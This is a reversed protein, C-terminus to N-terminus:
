RSSAPPSRAAPMAWSRCSTQALLLRCTPKGRWPQRFKRNYDVLDEGSLSLLREVVVSSGRGQLRADAFIALAKGILPELGFENKLSNLTPGAVNEGGILKTLTRSIVGKGARPPGVLLLIKQLHTRGSIAYGFWEQLLSLQESEVELSNLFQLWREPARAEPDYDFPVSVTNFYNPTHALRERTSVDLLCNHCAVLVGDHGGSLWGPQETERPLHAHAALADLVATVRGPIPSWNRYKGDAEYVAGDTFSWVGARIGNLELEAWHSGRWQWFGDQYHWLVRGRPHSHQVAEYERAVEMPAGPHPLVKGVNGDVSSTSHDRDHQRREQLDRLLDRSTM